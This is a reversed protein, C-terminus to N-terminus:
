VSKHLVSLFGNFDEVVEKLDIVITDRAILLGDVISLRFVGIKLDKIRRHNSFAMPHLDGERGFNLREAGFRFLPGRGGSLDVPCPVIYLCYKRSVVPLGGEQVALISFFGRLVGVTLGEVM